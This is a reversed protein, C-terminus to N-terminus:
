QKELDSLNPVVQCDKMLVNMMLGECKGFVTIRQGKQLKAVLDKDDIFCQVSRMMDSSELTIYIDDMIEKGIDGIKGEVYFKKGKVQNDANVENDVYMGVLDNANVTANKREEIQKM